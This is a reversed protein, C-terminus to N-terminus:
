VLFMFNRRPRRFAGIVVKYFVIRASRGVVVDRFALEEVFTPVARTFPKDRFSILFDRFRLCNVSTNLKM